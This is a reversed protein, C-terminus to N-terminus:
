LGSPWTEPLEARDEFHPVSLAKLAKTQDVFVFSDYRHALETPVYNRNKRSEMSPDYVVGVARHGLRRHLPSNTELGSLRTIIAPSEMEIAAKHFYSEYTGSPAQPLNMAQDEAGWATSATVQGEYTGFGVLNINERGFKERALGGLNIYDNELMDTAHYDGIHTNHAWVIAKSKPGHYNLLNELTELMHQDRINWSKAEGSIMARYYRDAHDIIRANQKLDFFDTPSLHTDHLRLRLLERLNSIVEEQCGMPFKVLSKAYAMEDHAFPEFCNYRQMIRLALDSDIGKLFHKVHAISDFLSYVDLGYIHGMKKSKMWDILPLMEENAWM